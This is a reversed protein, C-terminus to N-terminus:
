NIDIKIFETIPKYENDWWFVKIYKGNVTDLTVNVTEEADYVKVKAMSNEGYLAVYVKGTIGSSSALNADLTINNADKVFNSVALTPETTSPSSEVNIGGNVINVYIDNLDGDYINGVSYSINVEYNGEADKPVTFTLTAVTGNTSDGDMGDFGINVPNASLNGPKTFDLTSLATGRTVSKLVLNEDYLVSIMMGAIGTENGSLGIAIDVDTGPEGIVSAVTLTTKSSANVTPICM